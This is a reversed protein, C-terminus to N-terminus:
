LYSDSEDPMDYSIVINVEAAQVSAMASAQRPAGLSSYISDGSLQNLGADREIDIGRGFLDTAVLIRKQFEKFQKYRGARCALQVAKEDVHVLQSAHLAICLCAFICKCSFVRVYVRANNAYMSCHLAMGHLAVDPLAICTLVYCYLLGTCDPVGLLLVTRHAICHRTADYSAIRHLVLGYSAVCGLESCM